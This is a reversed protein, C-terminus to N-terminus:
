GPNSQKCGRWPPRKIQSVNEILADCECDKNGRPAFNWVLSCRWHFKTSCSSFFRRRLFNGSTNRSGSAKPARLRTISYVMDRDSLLRDGNFGGTSGSNERERASLVYVLLVNAISRRREKALPPSGRIISLLLSPTGGIAALISKTTWDLRNTGCRSDREM